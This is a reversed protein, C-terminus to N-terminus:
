LNHMVLAAVARLSKEALAGHGIMRRNLGGVRGTEGVSFPPFNYHHMFRKRESRTEMTDILQADGPGGLTLASLVHTGGRYFIGTGHIMDSVGGAQAFLPRLEDMARGDARRNKSMAEEHIIEDVRLEFLDDIISPKVEPVKEAALKKWDKKLQGIRKKGKTGDKESFVAEEMKPQIDSAFIDLVAQPTEPEKFVEKQQGIDAVIQKQWAELAQHVAAAKTLGEVVAAESVERAAVEIMNIMGDKGCALLDLTSVEERRDAYTPNIVYDNSGRVQGIRVAGVPGNWPINSTSLALSAAIVALVDTDDEGLALVTIIVQVERRM